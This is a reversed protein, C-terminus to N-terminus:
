RSRCISCWKIHVRNCNAFCTDCVPHRCSYASFVLTHELCIPCDDNKYQRQRQRKINDIQTYIKNTKRIYFALHCINQSWYDSITTDNPQLPEREEPICGNNLRINADIIDIETDFYRGRLQQKANHIFQTVTLYPDFQLIISSAVFAEKFEARVLM